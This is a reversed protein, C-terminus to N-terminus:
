KNLKNKVCIDKMLGGENHDSTNYKTTREGMMVTASGTIIVQYKVLSM